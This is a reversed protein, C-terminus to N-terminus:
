RIEDQPHDPDFKRVLISELVKPKDYEGRPMKSRWGRPIALYRDLPTRFHHQKREHFCTYNEQAIYVLLMMSWCCRMTAEFHIEAGSASLYGITRCLSEGSEHGLIRLADFADSVNNRTRMSMQTVAGSLNEGRFWYRRRTLCCSFLLNGSANTRGRAIARGICDSASPEESREGEFQTPSKRADKSVV